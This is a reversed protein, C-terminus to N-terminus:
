LPLNLVSLMQISFVIATEDLNSYWEFCVAVCM